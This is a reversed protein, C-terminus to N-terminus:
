RERTLESPTKLEPPAPRISAKWERWGGHFLSVDQLGALFLQSGIQEDYECADSQCYVVVKKGRPLERAFEQLATPSVHIPINIASPIHGAQYDAEFRADIVVGRGDAILQALEQRTVDPLQRSFFRTKVISIAEANRLFGTPAFGHWALAFAIAVAFLATARLCARRPRFDPTALDAPLWKRSGFAGVAGLAAFAAIAWKGALGQNENASETASDPYVVLAVGNWQALLQAYSITESRGPSEMIRIRDPGAHLVLVWHHFSASDRHRSLLLISPYQLLRLDSVTMGSKPTATLGVSDVAAVLEAPNSGQYSGVYKPALLNAYSVHQGYHRAASYVCDVGCYPGASVQIPPKSNSASSEASRCLGPLFALVFLVPGLIPKPASKM